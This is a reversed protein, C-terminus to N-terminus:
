LLHAAFGILEALRSSAWVSKRALAARRFRSAADGISSFIRMRMSICFSDFSM